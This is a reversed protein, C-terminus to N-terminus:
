RLPEEMMGYVASRKRPRDRTISKWFTSLAVFGLLALCAILGAVQLRLTDSWPVAITATDLLHDGDYLALPVARDGGAQAVLRARQLDAGDKVKSLIAVASIPSTDRAIDRLIRLDSLFDELEARNVSSKFINEMVAPGTAGYGYDSQFEGELLRKIKDPPAAAFLKRELYSEFEPSLRQARRASQLISAGERSEPDALILSVGVLMFAFEDTKGERTWRAATMSLDRMDGLISFRAPSDPNEIGADAASALKADDVAPQQAKAQVQKAQTKDAVKKDGAKGDAAKGDAAKGAAEVVSAPANASFMSLVSASRREYTDQLEEPLYAMAAQILAADGTQDSVKIREKLAASDEPGLMASAALMFGNVRTMDGDELGDRIYNAWVERPKAGGNVSLRAFRTDMAQRTAAIAESTADYAPRKDGYATSIVRAAIFPSACLAANFILAAYAAFPLRRKRRRNM